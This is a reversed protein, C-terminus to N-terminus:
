RISRCSMAKVPQTSKHFDKRQWNESDGSSIERWMWVYRYRYTLLTRFAWHKCMFSHPTGICHNLVWCNYVFWMRSCTKPLDLCIYGINACSYFHRVNKQCVLLLYGVIACSDCWHALNPYVFSLILYNCVYCLRTCTKPIGLKLVCRQHNMKSSAQM